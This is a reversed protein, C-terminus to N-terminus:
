RVLDFNLTDIVVSESAMCYDYMRGMGNKIATDASGNMRLSMKAPRSGFVIPRIGHPDRFGVIGIGNIMYIGAYGGKCTTMVKEVAEFIQDETTILSGNNNTRASM